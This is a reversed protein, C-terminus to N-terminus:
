NIGLGQFMLASNYAYQLLSLPSTISMISNMMAKKTRDNIKRVKLSELLLDRMVRLKDEARSAVYAQLSTLVNLTTVDSGFRGRNIDEVIRRFEVKDNASNFLAEAVSEVTHNISDDSEFDSELEASQIPNALISDRKKDKVGFLGYHEDTLDKFTWIRGGRDQITGDKWVEDVTIKNKRGDVQILKSGSELSSFEGITLVSAETLRTYIAETLITILQARRNM